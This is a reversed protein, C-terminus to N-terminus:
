RTDMLQNLSGLSDIRSVSGLHVRPLM